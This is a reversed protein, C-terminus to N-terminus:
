GLLEFDLDFLLDSFFLLLDLFNFLVNDGEAVDVGDPDKISVSSGDVVDSGDLSEEGVGDSAESTGVPTGVPGSKEISEEEKVVVVVVSRKNSLEM